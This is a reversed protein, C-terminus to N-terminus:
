KKRMLAWAVIAIVIVIIIGVAVWTWVESPPATTITTPTTTTTTSTTTIATGMSLTTTALPVTVQISNSGSQGNNDTATVVITYTGNNTYSHTEPFEGTTTQGDGWNWSISTVSAGTLSKVSGNITVSLGNISPILNIMPGTSTSTTTTTVTSEMLVLYTYPAGQYMYSVVGVVAMMNGKEFFLASVTANVSGASGSLSQSGSNDYTKTWGANVMETRYYSLIDSVSGTTSYFNVQVGSPFNELSSVPGVGALTDVTTAGPYVPLAITTTTTTTPSPGASVQAAQLVLVSLMSLALAGCVALSFPRIKGVFFGVKTDLGM